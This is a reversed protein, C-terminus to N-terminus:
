ISERAYALLSDFASLLVFAQKNDSFLVVLVTHLLVLLGSSSRIAGRQM